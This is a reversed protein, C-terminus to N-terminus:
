ATTKRCKYGNKARLFLAACNAKNFSNSKKPVL